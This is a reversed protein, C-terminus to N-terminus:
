APKMYLAVHGNPHASGALTLIQNPEIAWKLDMGRWNNIITLLRYLDVVLPEKVANIEPNLEYIGQSEMNVSHTMGDLNTVEARVSNFTGNQRIYLNVKNDDAEKYLKNLLNRAKDVPTYRSRVNTRRAVLEHIHEVMHYPYPDAGLTVTESNTGDSFEVDYAAKDAYTKNYTITARRNQRLTRMKLLFLEPNIKLAVQNDKVLPDSDCILVGNMYCVNDFTRAFMQVTGPNAKLYLQDARAADAVHAMNTLPAFSELEYRYTPLQQNSVTKVESM